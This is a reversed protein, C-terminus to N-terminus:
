QHTGGVLIGNTNSSALATLAELNPAQNRPTGVENNVVSGVVDNDVKSRIIPTM